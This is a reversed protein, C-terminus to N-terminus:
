RYITKLRGWSTVRVPVSPDSAYGQCSVVGYGPPLGLFSLQATVDSGASLGLSYCDLTLFLDFTQGVDRTITLDLTADGPLGLGTNFGKSNSAGERFTAAAESSSTAPRGSFGAHVVLRATFTFSGAAPGVLTFVDHTAVSAGGGCESTGSATLAASGAVLDYSAGALATGGYPPCFHELTLQDSSASSTESSDHVTLTNLPCSARATGAITLALLSALLLTAARM